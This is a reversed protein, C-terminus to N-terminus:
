CISWTGHQKESESFQSPCSQRSFLVNKSRRALVYNLL